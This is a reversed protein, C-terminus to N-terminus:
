RFLIFLLRVSRVTILKLESLMVLCLAASMEVHVYVCGAERMKKRSSWQLVNQEGESAAADVLTSASIHLHLQPLCLQEDDNSM